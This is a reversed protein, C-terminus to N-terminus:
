TGARSKRRMKAREPVALPVGGPSVTTRTCRKMCLGFDSVQTGISDVRCTRLERKQQLRLDLVAEGKPRRGRKRFIPAARTGEKDLAGSHLPSPSTQARSRQRPLSPRPCQRRGKGYPALPHVFPHAAFSIQCALGCPFTLLHRIQLHKPPSQRRTVGRTKLILTPGALTGPPNSEWEGGGNERM